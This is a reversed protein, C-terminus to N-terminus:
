GRPRPPAAADPCLPRSAGSTRKSPRSAGATGSPMRPGQRHAVLSQPRGRQPALNLGRSADPSACGARRWRRRPRSAAGAPGRGPARDRSTSPPRLSRTCPGRWASRKCGPRRRPCLCFSGQSSRVSRVGSSTSPLQYPSRTQIPTPKRAKFLKASPSPGSRVRRAVGRRMARCQNASAMAVKSLRATPVRSSFAASRPGAPVAAGAAGAAAGAPAGARTKHAFQSPCPQVPPHQAALAPPPLQPQQRPLQRGERGVDGENAM